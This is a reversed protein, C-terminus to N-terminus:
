ELREPLAELIITLMNRAADMEGVTVGNGMLDYLLRAVDGAVVLVIDPM